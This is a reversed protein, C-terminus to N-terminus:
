QLVKGAFPHISDLSLSSVNDASTDVVLRISNLTTKVGQLKNTTFWKLDAALERQKNKVAAENCRRAEAM